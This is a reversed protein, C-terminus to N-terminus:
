RSSCPHSQRMKLMEQGTREWRKYQEQKEPSSDTKGLMWYDFWDLNREMSEAEQVPRSMNHGTKPDVILENTVGCRWLATQFEMGQVALSQEGYELLTLSTM